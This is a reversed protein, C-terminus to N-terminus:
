CYSSICSNRAGALASAAAGFAAGAGLAIGGTLIIAGAVGVGILLWKGIKSWISTKDLVYFTEEMGLTHKQMFWMTSDGLKVLLEMIPDLLIISEAAFSISPYAFEFLIIFLLLFILRYVINRRKLLEM